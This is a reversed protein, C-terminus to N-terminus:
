TWKPGSMIEM